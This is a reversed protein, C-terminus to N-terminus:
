NNYINSKNKEKCKDCIIKSIDIYQTKEYEDLLINNINHGNKCNYLEIIYNNIKILIKEKCKPCIIDKSKIINNNKNEENIKNVIIKINNIDENLKEIELEENIRNGKYLYYVLNNDIQTKIIFKNFINKM